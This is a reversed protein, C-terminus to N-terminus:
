KGNVDVKSFHHNAPVAAMTYGTVSKRVPEFRVSHAIPVWVAEEKVIEQAKEYLKTREAIVTTRDAKTILDDYAPDCWRAFNGGGKVANCTLLNAFFNDPDGNDGSWGFMVAQHEGNRARQRYEGWEYTTLKVTIGVKSLDAQIREAMRKGDPSYPRQVPLYWLEMEFGNKYGAKALLERAKTVSYPYDVIKDNYSWLIPPIPNKAVQGAGQYITDLIGKKDIAMNIAQRVMKNDFPKKEVNLAIYGINLGEKTLLKISTDEKLAPIDAPKPYAMLQCEGTKVKALRVSADPTIAFILNDLKPRGEFYNDHAKYRILADKQYSVLRFPGTGVPKRDIIEPTGAAKMKEAFEASQISMFDMAMNAIFPANPAKLKFVVTYDDTKEVKEVIKDMGMDIFYAYKVGPTNKHFPHNTNAMRDYTFLVDDANFDRTATYKETTHFKVGKRLTFTYTLGDPSVAWASALGPVITTTGIEFDVLRNFLQASTADLATGTTYFMPNFGEPSGESCYVLTKAAFVPTAILGLILSPVIVTKRRM